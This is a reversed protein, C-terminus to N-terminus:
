GGTALLRDADVHVEQASGSRLVTLTLSGGQALRQLLLSDGGRDGLAVGDIGTVVDNSQLGLVDFANRNPGPLVAFGVLRGDQTKRMLRLFDNASHRASSGAPRSGTRPPAASVVAATAPESQSAFRLVETNGQHELLVRDAWVDLVKAGAVGDVEQGARYTREEGGSAIIAQRHGEDKGFLIGTLTLNLTTDSAAVVASVESAVPVGARVGFLHADAIDPARPATERAPREAATSPTSGGTSRRTERAIIMALAVVQYAVLVAGLAAVVGAARRNLV